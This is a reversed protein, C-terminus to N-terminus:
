IIPSITVMLLKCFQSKPDYTVDNPHTPTPIPTENHLLKELEVKLIHKGREALCSFDSCYTLIHPLDPFTISFDASRSSKTFVAPFVYTYM